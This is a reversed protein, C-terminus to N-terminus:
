RPETSTFSVVSRAFIIIKSMVCSKWIICVYRSNDSILTNKIYLMGIKVRCERALAFLYLLQM